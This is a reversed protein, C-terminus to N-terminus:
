GFDRRSTIKSLLSDIYIVPAMKYSPDPLAAEIDKYAATIAVGKEEGCYLQWMADSEDGVRWCSIFTCEKLNRRWDSLTQINFPKGEFQKKQARSMPNTISGEHRDKFVDARAFHLQKDSLLMVLKALDIYRWLVVSKDSPPPVVNFFDSARYSGKQYSFHNIM